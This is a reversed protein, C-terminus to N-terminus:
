RRSMDYNLVRSRKRRIGLKVEVDHLQKRLIDLNFTTSAGDRSDSQVGSQLVALIRARTEALTESM